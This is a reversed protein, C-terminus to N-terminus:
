EEGRLVKETEKKLMAKQTKVCPKNKKCNKCKLDKPFTLKHKM